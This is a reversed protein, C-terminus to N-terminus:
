TGLTILTAAIIMVSGDLTITESFAGSNITDLLQCGDSRFWETTFRNLKCRQDATKIAGMIATSTGNNYIQYTSTLSSGVHTNGLALIPTATTGGSICIGTIQQGVGVANIQGSGALNM